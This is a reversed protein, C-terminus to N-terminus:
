EKRKLVILTWPPDEKGVFETPRDHGGDAICLWIKDNGELYCVGPETAGTNPGVMQVFDIIGPNTSLSARVQFEDALGDPMFLRIIGKDVVWTSRAIFPDEAKKGHGEIQVVEWSGQFKPTDDKEPLKSSCGPAVLSLGILFPLVCRLSM